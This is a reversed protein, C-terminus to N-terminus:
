DTCFHISILGDVVEQKRQRQKVNTMRVSAEDVVFGSRVATDPGFAPQREAFVSARRITM